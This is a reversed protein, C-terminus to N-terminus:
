RRSGAASSTRNTESRIPKSGNAPGDPQGNDSDRMEQHAIMGGVIRRFRRPVSSQGTRHESDRLYEGPKYNVTRYVGTPAYFELDYYGFCACYAGGYSSPMATMVRLIDDRNTLTVLERGGLKPHQRIVIRDPIREDSPLSRPPAEVFAAVIGVGVVLAVGILLKRSPIRM